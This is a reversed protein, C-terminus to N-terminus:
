RGKWAARIAGAITRLFDPLKGHSSYRADYVRRHEPFLQEYLPYGVGFITVQREGFEEFGDEIAVGGISPISKGAYRASLRDQEVLHAPQYAANPVFAGFAVGM